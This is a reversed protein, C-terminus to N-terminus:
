PIFRVFLRMKNKKLLNKGFFEKKQRNKESHENESNKQKVCKKERNESVFWPNNACM